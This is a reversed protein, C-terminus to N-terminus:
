RLLRYVLYIVEERIHKKNRVLVALGNAVLQNALFSGEDNTNVYFEYRALKPLAKNVCSITRLSNKSGVECLEVTCSYDGCEVKLETDFMVGDLQTKFM